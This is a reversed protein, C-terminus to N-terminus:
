EAYELMIFTCSSSPKIAFIYTHLYLVYQCVCALLEGCISCEQDATHVREFHTKLAHGIKPKTDNGREEGRREEEAERGYGRDEM